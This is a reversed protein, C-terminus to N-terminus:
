DEMLYKFKMKHTSKRKNKCVKSICSIPVKLKNSAETLSNFEEIIKGNEGLLAIKRRKNKNCNILIETQYKTHKALGNDFAHKTNESPTAWELNEVRNDTKIGNIHNVQSKNYPNPIFTEAVLRHIRYRNKNNGLCVCLYGRCFNSKLIREKVFRYGNKIKVKRQLNKINGFNSVQYKKEYGKIDKWIENIM